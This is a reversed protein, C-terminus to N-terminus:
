VGGANYIFSTSYSVTYDKSDYKKIKLVGIELIINRYKGDIKFNYKYRVVKSYNYVRYNLHQYYGAVGDYSKVEITGPAQIDKAKLNCKNNIIDIAEDFYTKIMNEYYNNGNYIKRPKNGQSVYEQFKGCIYDNIFLAEEYNLRTEKLVSLTRTASSTNGTTAIIISLVAMSAIVMILTIQAKDKKM